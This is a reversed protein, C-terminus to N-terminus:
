VAVRGKMLSPLVGGRGLGRSGGGVRQERALRAQVLKANHAVTRDNMLEVIMDARVKVDKPRGLVRREKKRERGLEENLAAVMRNRERQIEE